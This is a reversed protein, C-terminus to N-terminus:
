RMRLQGQLIQLEPLHSLDEPGKPSALWIDLNTDGENNQRLPFELSQKELEQERCKPQKKDRQLHRSIWKGCLEAASHHDPM